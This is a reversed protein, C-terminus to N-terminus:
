KSQLEYTVVFLLIMKVMGILIWEHRIYM